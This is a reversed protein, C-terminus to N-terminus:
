GRTRELLTMMLTGLLIFDYENEEVQGVKEIHFNREVLSRRKVVKAILTGNSRKIHYEPNIFSAFIFGILPIEGVIGDLLKIWPNGEVIEGIARGDARLEYTTRWISRMGKRSISGFRQGDRDAFFYEANFDIIRDAKITAIVTSQTEDSYVTVAEKFALLKQKVYALEKGAADKVYIQPALALLKFTLTIPFKM